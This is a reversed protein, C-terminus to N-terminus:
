PAREYREIVGGPAAAANLDGVVRWLLLCIRRAAIEDVVAHGRVEANPHILDRHDVVANADDKAVLLPEVGNALSSSTAADIFDPLSWREFKPPNKKGRPAFSGALDPRRGIVDALVAELISGCLMMVSKTLGFTAAGELEDVDREVMAQLKADKMFALSGRVKAFPIWAGRESSPTPRRAKLPLVEDLAQHEWARVGLQSIQASSPKLLGRAALDQVAVKEEREQAHLYATVGGKEYIAYYLGLLRRKLENPEMPGARPIFRGTEISVVSARLADVVDTATTAARLMSRLEPLYPVAKELVQEAESKVAELEANGLSEVRAVLERVKQAKEYDDANM